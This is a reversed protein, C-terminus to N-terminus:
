KYRRYLWIGFGLALICFPLVGGLLVGLTTVQKTTIGLTGGSLSKPAISISQDTGTLEGLLNLLYASNSLSSNHIWLEGLMETSASVVVHSQKTATGNQTVSRTLLAMAPFPGWTEAEKPSFDEGADSPQVGATSGFTLLESAAYSDKSSFVLSLPRSLPMLMPTDTDILSGSYETEAYDVIPYYPQYQYTREATTEYVVGDGVSVGWESLFTEVNPLATQAASATYFLTKGFEGGHYLYNELTRIDDEGLDMQPATLLLVDFAELADTALVVSEVEYNNNALLAVFSSVDQEGHGTVVGIRVVSDNLVNLIAGTVAEEARSSEIAVSGSQTYTYNFLNVFGVQHTKESTSVIVDGESLTLDPHSAAYTPDVTYDVYRLTVYRSYRPYCDLIHKVQVLYRDGAMDNESAMVDISIPESLSALVAKTEDGIEYAANATLDCSLPYRNSLLLCVANFLLLAVLMLAILVVFATNMRWATKSHKSQKKM